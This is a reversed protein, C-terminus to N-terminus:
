LLIFADNNLYYFHFHIKYQKALIFFKLAMLKLRKHSNTHAGPSFKKSLLEWETKRYM